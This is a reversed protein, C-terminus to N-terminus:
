RVCTDFFIWGFYEVCCHVAMKQVPRLVSQSNATIRSKFYYYYYIFNIRHFRQVCVLMRSAHMRCYIEAYKHKVHCELLWKMVLLIFQVQVVRVEKGEAILGTGHM